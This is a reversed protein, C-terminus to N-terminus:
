TKKVNTYTTGHRSLYDGIKWSLRTPVFLFSNDPPASPVEHVMMGFCENSYVQKSYPVSYTLCQSFISINTGYNPVGEAGGSVGVQGLKALSCYVNGTLFVDKGNQTPQM